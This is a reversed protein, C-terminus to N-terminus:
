LFDFSGAFGAGVAATPAAVGVTFTAAGTDFDM